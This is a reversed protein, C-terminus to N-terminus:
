TVDDRIFYQCIACSNKHHDWWDENGPVDKTRQIYQLHASETQNPLSITEGDLATSARAENILQQRAWDAVSPVFEEEPRTVSMALIIHEDATVVAAIKELIDWPEGGMIVTEEQDDSLRQTTMSVTYM